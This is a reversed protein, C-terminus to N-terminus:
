VVSLGSNAFFWEYQAELKSDLTEDAVLGMEANSGRIGGILISDDAKVECPLAYAKQIRDAFALDSAKVLLITGPKTLVKAISSAYGELLSPYLETQAYALLKEKAKEFVEQTIEQRQLFLKKKGEMEEHSIETAVEKRMQAMEKQILTYADTLVEIEAKKLEEEKFQEVEAHIENRQQEAYKNIAELFASEKETSPM